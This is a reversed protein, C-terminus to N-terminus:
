RNDVTLMDELEIGVIVKKLDSLHSSHSTKSQSYFRVIWNLDQIVESSRGSKRFAPKVFHSISYFKVQAVQATGCVILLQGGVSSYPPCIFIIPFNLNRASLHWVKHLRREDDPHANHMKCGSGKFTRLFNCFRGSFFLKKFGETVMTWTHKHTSYVDQHLEPCRMWAYRYAYSMNTM